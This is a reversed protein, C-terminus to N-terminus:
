WTDIYPHKKTTRPPPPPVSNLARTVVRRSDKPDIVNDIEYWTAANLAKGREYAAAVMNDYRQKREAPDEIAALENRYGLKVSGELGMGGFEGTPWAVVSLPTMSSGAVMAVAGLGYCKRLIITIFPVTVNAGAVFMRSCHRVLATKEVEPGVMIGPTDCLSLIPIDFNDCIQMFRTAKDAAPSDIAGSLYNPNNAIVGIPRGEIRIFATVMGHGFHRRMELVSGTDAITEIVERVDYIRLRDEPIIARLQRQDPCDWEEIAGQFYSLYQQAVQVAEFEDEVAIDVVGNPVQVDMSGIDEPKFVGLGGGEVMAPGGM